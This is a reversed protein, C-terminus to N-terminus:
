FLFLIAINITKDYENEHSSASYDINVNLVINENKEEIECSYM